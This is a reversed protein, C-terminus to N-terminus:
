VDRKCLLGKACNQYAPCDREGQSYLMMDGCTSINCRKWTFQIKATLARDRVAKLMMLSAVCCRKQWIPKKEKQKVIVSVPIWNILGGPQPQGMSITVQISLSSIRWEAMWCLSGQLSLTHVFQIPFAGSGLGKSDSFGSQDSVVSILNTDTRCVCSYTPYM